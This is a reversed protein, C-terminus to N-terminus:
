GGYANEGTTSPRLMLYLVYFIRFPLLGWLLNWGTRDSDHLRRVGMAIGPLLLSLSAITSIVAVTGVM